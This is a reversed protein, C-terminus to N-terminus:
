LREAYIVAEVELTEEYAIEIPRTVDEGVELERINQHRGPFDRICSAAVDVSIWLRMMVGALQRHRIAHWQDSIVAEPLTGAQSGTDVETVVEHYGRGLCNSNGLM